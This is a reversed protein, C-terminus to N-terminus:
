DGAQRCYEQFTEELAAPEEPYVKGALAPPRFPGSRYEEEAAALAQAFRHDELLLAEGLRDIVEEIRSPLLTIGTRLLFATSLTPIDRTGDCLSLLTGLAQPVLVQNDTLGLPDRLLFFSEGQHVVPRVDLPRLKSFLPEEQSSMAPM